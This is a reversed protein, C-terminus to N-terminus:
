GLTRDCLFRAGVDPQAQLHMSVRKGELAMAGDGARVRSMSGDDWLLSLNAATRLKADETFGHGGIFAGGESTFIGISPQGEHLLKALGEITPEHVVLFPALPPLPEPGLSAIKEKQEAYTLKKDNAIKRTQGEWAKREAVHKAFKQQQEERLESQRLKVSETALNDVTTKREGSPAITLLDVSIPRTRGTPLMVDVHAQAALAVTAIVSNACIAVPAQTAAHIALTAEKLAGLADLPFPGAPPLKRVLPLPEDGDDGEPGSDADSPKGTQDEDPPPPEGHSKAHYNSSTSRDERWGHDRAKGFLTRITRGGEPKISAWTKRFEAEDFKVSTMAWERAVGFGSDGLESKIAMCIYLYDARDDAPIYSLASRIREMEPLADAAHRWTHAGNVPHSPEVEPFEELDYIRDEHFEVLEAMAPRRGAKTKTGDPGDLVNITYPLRMIRDANHCADAAFTQEIHQMRREIPAMLAPDGNVRIIESLRWFGQYGGTSWVIATPPPEYSRLDELVRAKEAEVSKQDNWNLQKSLDADVHLWHIEVIDKKTAKKMLMVGVDNVSFYINRKGQLGSIFKRVKGEVGPDAPDFTQAPGVETKGPGFSTLAWLTAPHFRRLFSNALDIADPIHRAPAESSAEVVKPPCWQKSPAGDTVLTPPVGNGDAGNAAATIPETSANQSQM